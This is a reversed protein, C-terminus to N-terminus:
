SLGERQRPAERPASVICGSVVRPLVQSGQQFRQSGGGGGGSGCGKGPSALQSPLPTTDRLLMQPPPAPVKVLTYAVHLNDFPKSYFGQPDRTHKAQVDVATWPM